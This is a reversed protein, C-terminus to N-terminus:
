NTLLAYRHVVPGTSPEVGVYISDGLIFSTPRNRAGGTLVAHSGPIEVGSADFLRRHLTGSGAPGVPPSDPVIYHLITVGKGPGDGQYVSVATPMTETESGAVPTEDPVSTSWASDFYQRHLDSPGHWDLTDPTWLEYVSDLPRWVVGSGASQPHLADGISYTSRTGFATAPLSYVTHGASATPVGVSVTAGDSVLFFDAVSTAANGVISSFGDFGLDTGRYRRLAVESGSANGFAAFYYGASFLLRHGSLPPTTFDAANALVVYTPPLTLPVLDRDLVIGRLEGNQESTVLVTYTNTAIGIGQTGFTVNYTRDEARVSLPIGPSNRLVAQVINPPVNRRFPKIRVTAKWAGTAPEGQYGVAYEHVGYQVVTLLDSTAGKRNKTEHLYPPVLLTGDPLRYSAVLPATGSVRRVSLRSRDNPQLAVQIPGSTEDGTVVIKTPRVVKITGTLPSPAGSAPNVNTGFFFQYRGSKAARWGPQSRPLGFNLTLTNRGSGYITGFFPVAEAVEDGDPDIVKFNRFSIPPMGKSTGLTVAIHPESGAALPFELRVNEGPPLNGLIRQGDVVPAYLEAARAATAAALVLGLAAFPLFRRSTVGRM